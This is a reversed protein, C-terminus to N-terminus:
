KPAKAVKADIKGPEIWAMDTCAPPKNDWPVLGLSKFIAAKDQRTSSPETADLVEKLRPWDDVLSVEKIVDRLLTVQQRLSEEAYEMGWLFAQYEVLESTAIRGTKAFFQARKEQETM